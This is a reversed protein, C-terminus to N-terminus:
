DGGTGRRTNQTARKGVRQCRKGKGFNSASRTKIHLERTGGLLVCPKEGTGKWISGTGPQGKKEKLEEGL